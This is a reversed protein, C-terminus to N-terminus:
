EVYPELPKAASPREQNGADFCFIQIGQAFCHAYLHDLNLDNFKHMYVVKPYADFSVILDQPMYKFEFEDMAQIIAKVKEVDQVYKVYIRGYGKKTFTQM